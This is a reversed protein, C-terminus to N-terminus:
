GLVQLLGYKNAFAPTPATAESEVHRFIGHSVQCIGDGPNRRMIVPIVETINSGANIFTHRNHRGVYTSTSPSQCFTSSKRSPCGDTMPRFSHLARPPVRARM